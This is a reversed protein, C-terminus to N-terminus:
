AVAPGDTEVTRLVAAESLVTKLVAAESLVTKLVAAESLVAEFSTFGVCRVPTTGCVTIATRDPVDTVPLVSSRPLVARAGLVDFAATFV